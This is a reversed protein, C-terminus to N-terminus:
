GFEFWQAILDQCRKHPLCALLVDRLSRDIKRFLGITTDSGANHLRCNREKWLSYIVNQVTLKKLVPSLGATDSIMWDILSSWDVFTLGRQGLRLMIMDWLQSAVGCHLFVHDRTEQALGCLCCTDQVCIGWKELRERLPLRDLNTVWFHFAHKPVAYKFWVAKEWSVLPASDRVFEWTAKISFLPSRNGRTGWTFQDPPDQEEPPHIDLLTTRLTALSATRCRASPLIWGHQSSGEFVM